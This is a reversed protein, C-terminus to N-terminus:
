SIGSEVSGSVREVVRLISIAFTMVWMVLVLLLFAALGRQRRCLKPDYPTYDTEGKDAPARCIWDQDFLTNFTLALNASSFIIFILDLMILKVKNKANRLGLPKSSYEDYTIYFLYVLACSQVCIAMTTSPEQAVRTGAPEANRYIITYHQIGAALALAAASLTFIGLRLTMPVYPNNLLVM